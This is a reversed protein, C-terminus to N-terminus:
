GLDVRWISGTAPRWLYIDSTSNTDYPGIAAVTAFALLGGGRTMSSEEENAGTGAMVETGTEIDRVTLGIRRDYAFTGGDPSLAVGLIRDDQLSGASVAVTANVNMVYADYWLVEYGSREQFTLLRGDASMSYPGYTAANSPDGDDYYVRLEKTVRNARDRVYIGNSFYLDVPPVLDSWCQFGVNTGNWNVVPSFCRRPAQDGTTTVSVRWTRHSRLDHMFVDADNNTDRSGILNTAYSTFVVYRGNRSIEPQYSLDNGAMGGRSVSVRVTRGTAMYHVFVDGHSSADDPVLNTASSAFVVRRGDASVAPDYSAANGEIGASSVSVRRTVGSARDRWFVDSLANSDDGVLNSAESTFALYRGTASLAPESSWGNGQSGAAEVRGAALTNSAHLPIVLSTALLVPLAAIAGRGRSLSM